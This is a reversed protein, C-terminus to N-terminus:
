SGGSDNLIDRLREVQPGHGFREVFAKRGNGALSRRRPVDALLEGLAKALDDGDGPRCTMIEDDGFGETVASSAATVVPRGCAVAEFVKHPIVRDAKASLGFVGLVVAARHMGRVLDAQDMPEHFEVNRCGLSETLQEIRGRDQGSGVFVFKAPSERTELVHAARVIWEAGQLPVYTGYFFVLHPDEEIGELPGFITEDAGLYLVRVSTSSLDALTEFFRAHAPSDAIVIDAARLAIRDVQRIMRATLSDTRVLSRDSVATDYLSIFVDFVVPRRKVLAVLKVIPVDFWGPYSVLYVDPARSFMLKLLLLPLAGMLRLAVKVRGSQFAGVRDPPWVQVRIAHVDVGAGHLYEALRRNRSFEPVFTGAWTVTV